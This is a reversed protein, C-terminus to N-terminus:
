HDELAAVLKLTASTASPSSTPGVAALSAVLAGIEAVDLVVTARRATVPLAIGGSRGPRSRFPVGADRLRELDREVTRVSVQLRDALQGATRWGGGALTEILAQQREVRRLALHGDRSRAALDDRTQM